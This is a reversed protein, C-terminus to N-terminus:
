GHQMDGEEQYKKRYAEPSDGFRKKFMKSFMLQDEYGVERAVRYIPWDTDQLLQRSKEMRVQMLYEQPSMLMRRRFVTSFYTRNIGIYDAVDSIRLHAYNDRIYKVAYDVYADASLVGRRSDREEGKEHSAIALSLFRIACSNRYFESSRKLHPHALIEEVLAYMETMSVRCDRVYVGEGFGAYAMYRGANIGGFTVWCYRWPHDPDPRYRIEEMERLLFFQGAHVELTKGGVELIGQGSLVLHLHWGERRTEPFVKNPLCQEVGCARIYLSADRDQLSELGRYTSSQFFNLQDPGSQTREEM